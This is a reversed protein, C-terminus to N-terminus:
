FTFNTQLRTACLIFHNKGGIETLQNLESFLGEKQRVLNTTVVGRYRGLRARWWVALEDLAGLSKQSVGGELLIPTNKQM